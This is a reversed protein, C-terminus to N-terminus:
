LHLNFAINKKLYRLNAFLIHNTDNKCNSVWSKANKVFEMLKVVKIKHDLFIVKTRNM